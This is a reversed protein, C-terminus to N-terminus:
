KRKRFLKVCDIEVHFDFGVKMLNVAEKVNKFRQSQSRLKHSDGGLFLLYVHELYGKFCFCPMM